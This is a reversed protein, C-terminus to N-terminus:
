LSVYVPEGPHFTMSLTANFPPDDGSVAVRVDEFNFELLEEDFVGVGAISPTQGTGVAVIGSSGMTVTAVMDVGACNARLTITIIGPSLIQIRTPDPGAGVDPAFLFWSTDGLTAQQNWVIYGGDTTSDSDNFWAIPDGGAATPAVRAPVMVGKSAPAPPSAVHTRGGLIGPSWRHFGTAVRKQIDAAIALTNSPRPTPRAPM